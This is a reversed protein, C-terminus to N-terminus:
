LGVSKLLYFVIELLKFIAYKIGQLFAKIQKSTSLTRAYHIKIEASGEVSNKTKKLSHKTKVSLDMISKNGGIKRRNVQKRSKSGSVRQLQKM